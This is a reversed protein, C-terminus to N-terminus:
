EWKDYDAKMEVWKIEICITDVGSKHKEESGSYNCVLLLLIAVLKRM